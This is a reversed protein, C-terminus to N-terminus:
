SVEIYNINVTMRDEVGVGPVREFSLGNVVIKVIDGFPPRMYIDTAGASTERLDVLERWQDRVTRTATAELLATLSGTEGLHTGRDVKRGRGILTFVGEEWEDTADHGTVINLYFNKTDDAGNIMYYDTIGSTSFTDVNYAGEVLGNAISQTVEVVAVETTQNASFAFLDYNYNVVNDFTEYALVWQAYTQQRAYLRYSYFQGDKLADTWAINVEGTTAANNDIVLTTPSAM